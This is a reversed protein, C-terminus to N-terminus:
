MREECTGQKQESNSGDAPVDPIGVRHVAQTLLTHEDCASVAAKPIQQGFLQIFFTETDYSSTERLFTCCIQCCRGGGRQLSEQQINCVAPADPPRHLKHASLDPLSTLRSSLLPYVCIPHWDSHPM